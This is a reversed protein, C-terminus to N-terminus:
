LGRLYDAIEDQSRVRAEGKKPQRYENSLSPDLLRAKQNDRWQIEFYDILQRQFRPELVPFVTEVRTDFNRPLFDASSLYVEPKGGNHFILMRSHELYKDVIGIAEIRGGPGEPGTILSFMGRVILRMVPGDREASISCVRIM